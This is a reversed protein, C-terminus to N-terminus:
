HTSCTGQAGLKQLKNQSFGIISQKVTPSQQDVYLRLGAEAFGKAPSSGIGSVVLVDPKLAMINAVANSCGGSKHGPNEVGEVNVINNDEMTIITYYKAKGFHAGRRSLYGLNEDTPFIIKM